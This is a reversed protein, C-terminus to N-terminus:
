STFGGKRLTNRDLLNQADRTFKATSKAFQYGDVELPVVFTLQDKMGNIASQVATDIYDNMSERQDRIDASVSGLSRVASPTLTAGFSLSGPSSVGSMDLVPSLYPSIDDFESLGESTSDLLASALGSGINKIASTNKDVGMDLGAIMYGMEKAMEKSPSAIGSEKELGGKLWNWINAGIDKLKQKFESWKNKFGDFMNQVVGSISEGFAKQLGELLNMSMAEGGEEAQDGSEKVTGKIAYVLETLAGLVMTIGGAVALVVVSIAASLAIVEVTLLAASVSIALLSASLALLGPWVLQALGAMVVVIGLAGALLKLGNTMLEYPILSIVALAAALILISTSLLVMSAGIALMKVVGNGSLVGIFVSLELLALGLQGIAHELQDSPLLALIALAGALLVIAPAMILMAAASALMTVPNLFNLISFALVLIGMVAGLSTVVGTLKRAPILTLALLAVTILDLAAAVLVISVGAALMRKGDFSSLVALLGVLEILVVTVIHLGQEIKDAPILALVLMAAAIMLIGTGVGAMATGFAAISAAQKMDIKSFLWFMGVIAAILGAVTGLSQALKDQPIMALILMAAAIKLISNAFEKLLNTDTFKALSTSINDAFNKLGKGLDDIKGKIDKFFGKIGGADADEDDKKDGNILQSIIEKIGKGKFKKAADNVKKAISAIFGLIGIDLLGKLKVDFNNWDIHGFFGSIMDGLGSFLSTLLKILSGIMPAFTDIITKVGGWLGSFVETITKLFDSSSSEVEPDVLDTLAKILKRIGEVVKEIFSAGDTGLDRFFRLMSGNGVLDQSIKTIRRGIAGFLELFDDGLSKVPAFATKIAGWALEVTNKIITGTSRIGKLIDWLNEYRRTIKDTDEIIEETSGPEFLGEKVLEPLGNKALSARRRAHFKSEAINGNSLLGSYIPGYSEGTLEDQLVDIVSPLGLRTRSHFKPVEIAGETGFLTEKVLEPLNYKEHSSLSDFFTKTYDSDISFVGNDEWFSLRRATYDPRIVEISKKLLESITKGSNGILGEVLQVTEGSVSTDIEEINDEVEDSIGILKKFADISTTLDDTFKKFKDTATTLSNVNINPLLDGFTERIIDRLSIIANMMNSIGAMFDQYGGGNTFHWEELLENRAFGGEAFLEYLFNALDTWLKKAEEYNGFILQFTKMWGTSVADTLAEWAQKATIAEQAAAFAKRGTDYTSSGLETLKDTLEEVSIGTVKAMKQIRSTINEGKSLADIYELLDSTTYYNGNGVLEYFENLATSFKGYVSLAKEMAETNLWKKSLTERMNEAKVEMGGAFFKDGRKKLTGVEVAADILAQKFALTDMRSTQIWNWNITSMYGAAMAKSFGAMAHSANQVGSGALAAAAGIGMMQDVANELEIGASTFKAINSTMDTLSYSTEDSFWNLKNMYTTIEDISKGTAAVMTQISQTIEGYKGWGASIQDTVLKKVMKEGLQEISAGLRRAVGIGVQELFSFSKSVTNIGNNLTGFTINSFAKQIKDIGTNAGKLALSDKLKALTGMSQAAASEFQANDFKLGLIRQDIDPM